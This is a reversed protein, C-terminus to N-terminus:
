DIKQKYDIGVIGRTFDFFAQEIDQIGKKIEADTLKTEQPKKKPM